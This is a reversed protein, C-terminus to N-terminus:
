VCCWLTLQASQVGALIDNIMRGYEGATIPTYIGETSPQQQNPPVFPMWGTFFQTTPHQHPKRDTQPSTCVQTHDLQHWEWKSDRAETFGSRNQREPVPQGPYDRVFTWEVPTTTYVIVSSIMLCHQSGNWDTDMWGTGMAWWHHMRPRDNNCFVILFRWVPLWVWMAMRGGSTASIVVFSDTASSWFCNSPPQVM